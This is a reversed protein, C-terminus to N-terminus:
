DTKMEKIAVELGRWKGKSVTGMGGEGINSIIDIESRDIEWSFKAM